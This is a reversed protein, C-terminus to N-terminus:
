KNEKELDDLIESITLKGTIEKIEKPKGILQNISYERAQRNKMAEKVQIAIIKKWFKTHQAEFEKRMNEVIVTKTWKGGKKIGGWKPHDKKAGKTQKLEM